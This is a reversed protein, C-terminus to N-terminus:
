MKQGAVLRGQVWVKEINRDDRFLTLLRLELLQLSIGM